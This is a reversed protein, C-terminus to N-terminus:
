KVKRNLEKTVLQTFLYAIYAVAYTTVFIGATLVSSNPEYGVFMGVDLISWLILLWFSAMSFLIALSVCHFLLKPSFTQTMFQKFSLNTKM